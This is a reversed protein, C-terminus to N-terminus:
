CTLRAMLEALDEVKREGSATRIRTGRLLCNAKDKDKARAPHVKTLVAAAGTSGLIAGMKIVNRRTRQEAAILIRQEDM